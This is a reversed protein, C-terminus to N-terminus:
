SRPGLAVAGKLVDRVSERGAQHGMLRPVGRAKAWRGNGDMIIAIHRPVTGRARLAEPTLPSRV